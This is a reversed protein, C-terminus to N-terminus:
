VSFTKIDRYPLGVGILEVVPGAYGAAKLASFIRDLADPGKRDAYHAAEEAVIWTGPVSYRFFMGRHWNDDCVQPDDNRREFKVVIWGEATREANTM